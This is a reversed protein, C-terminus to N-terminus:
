IAEMVSTVVFFRIVAAALQSSVSFPASPTVM